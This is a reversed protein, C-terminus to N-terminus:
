ICWPALLKVPFIYERENKIINMGDEVYKNERNQDRITSVAQVTRPNIEYVKENEYIYVLQFNNNKAYVLYEVNISEGHGALDPYKNLLDKAIFNFSHIMDHKFLVYYRRGDKLWLALHRNKNKYDFHDINGKHLKIFWDFAVHHNQFM